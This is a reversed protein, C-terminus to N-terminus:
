EVQFRERSRQSSHTPGSCALTSDSWTTSNSTNGTDRTTTSVTGTLSSETVHTSRTAHEGRGLGPALPM